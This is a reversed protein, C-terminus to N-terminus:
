SVSTPLAPSRMSLSEHCTCPESALPLRPLPILVRSGDLARTANSAVLLRRARLDVSQWRLGLLEGERMGLTVALVYLGELPDGYATELLDDVEARTLTVFDRARRRPADVAALAHSVRHGRKAAGNLAAKLTMHVHHATTGSVKRALAAHLRDIHSAALVDLRVSGIAPVIHLRTNCSTQCWISEM